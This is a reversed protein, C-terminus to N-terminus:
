WERGGECNMNYESKELSGILGLFSSEPLLGCPTNFEKALGSDPSSVGKSVFCHYGM